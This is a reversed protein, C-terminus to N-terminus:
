NPSENPIFIINSYRSSFFEAVPMLALFENGSLNILFYDGFESQRSKRIQRHLLLVINTTPTPILLSSLSDPVARNIDM